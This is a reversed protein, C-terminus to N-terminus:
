PFNNRGLLYDTSIGFFDALAQLSNVSPKREGREYKRIIDKSLGCLEGLTARTLKRRERLKRLRQPFEDAAGQNEECLWGYRPRSVM